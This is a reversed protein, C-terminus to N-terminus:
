LIFLNLFAALLPVLVYPKEFLMRFVSANKLFESSLDGPKYIPYVHSRVSVFLVAVPYVTMGNLYVKREYKCCKNVDCGYGSLVGVEM